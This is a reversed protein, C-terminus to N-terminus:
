PGAQDHVPHCGPRGGGRGGRGGEGGRGEGRVEILAGPAQKTM